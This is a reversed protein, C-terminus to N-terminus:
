CTCEISHWNFCIINHDLACPAFPFIGTESENRSTHHDINGLDFVSSRDCGHKGFLQGGCAM